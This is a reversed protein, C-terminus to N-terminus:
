IGREESLNESPNPIEKSVGAFQREAPSRKVLIGKTNLGFLKLVPAGRTTEVLVGKTSKDLIQSGASRPHNTSLDGKYKIWCALLGVSRPPDKALIARQIKDLFSLVWREAPPIM